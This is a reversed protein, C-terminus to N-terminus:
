SAIVKGPNMIAYPDLARKIQRMAELAAPSKYHELEHVKLTGIGHEASFSGGLDQVIDHVVRNAAEWQQLYAERDAGVPQSLNYHLNGDGAHGFSCPRTGPILKEIAADARELFAPIAALPVSIDHKISGGEHKQADSIEERIRRFAARQSDNQAIAADTVWGNEMAAGLGEELASQLDGGARPSSLEILAYWASLTEVPDATGPVHRLVTEISFRSMLEFMTVTDGSSERLLALTDIAAQPNEVAVFATAIDRPRPFLKLVAATIIGLTGEAGLFLHRLDYGTNDKRLGHLGHIIEGNPLVVELGLVLDRSNGYRLVATGGANTSLNGGIQCSGEAALSLPFLRDAEEAAKQVDALVVGAEVTLTYASKDLARVKNMRALSLIIAKEDAVAGGVLGTNGGQPVIPTRTEACLKVVAAVEETNAPKVVVRATGRYLGRWEVLHPELLAPDVIVGKPGLIEHLRSLVAETPM